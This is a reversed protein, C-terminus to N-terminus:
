RRAPLLRRLQRLFALQLSKTLRHARIKRRELQRPPRTVEPAHALEPAQVALVTGLIDLRGHGLRVLVPEEIDVADLRDQQLVHRLPIVLQRQAKLLFVALVIGLVSLSGRGRFGVQLIVDRVWFSFVGISSSIWVSSSVRLNRWARAVTSSAM